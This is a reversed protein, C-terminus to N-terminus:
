EGLIKKFNEKHNGIDKMILSLIPQRLLETGHVLVTTKTGDPHQYQHHSGRQRILIFGLEELAKIVERPKKPKM